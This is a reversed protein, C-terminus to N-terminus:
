WTTAGSSVPVTIHPRSPRQHQLMEPPLVDSTAFVGSGPPVSGTTHPVAPMPVPTIGSSEFSRAAATLQDLRRLEAELEAQHVQLQAISTGVMATNSAQTMAQREVGRLVLFIQHRDIGPLEGSGREVTQVEAVLRNAEAGLEHLAVETRELLYAQRRATATLADLARQQARVHLRLNSAAGAQFTLRVLAGALVDLPGYMGPRLSQTASLDGATTRQAVSAVEALQTHVLTRERELRARADELQTVTELLRGQEVAQQARERELLAVQARLGLLLEGLRSVYVGLCLVLLAMVSGLALTELAWSEVSSGLIVHTAAFATLALAAVASGSRWSFFLTAVCVPALFLLPVYAQGSHAWLAACCAALDALPLLVRAAVAYHAGRRGLELAALGAIAVGGLAAVLAASVAASPALMLWALAGLAAVLGAGLHAAAVSRLIAGGFAPSTWFYSSLSSDPGAPMHADLREDGYDLM